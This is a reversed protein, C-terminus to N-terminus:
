GFTAVQIKAPAIVAACSYFTLNDEHAQDKTRLALRSKDQFSWLVHTTWPHYDIHYKVRIKPCNEGLLDGCRSEALNEFRM